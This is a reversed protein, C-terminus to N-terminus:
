ITCCLSSIFVAHTICICYTGAMVSQESNIHVGNFLWWQQHVGRIHNLCLHECIHDHKLIDREHLSGQGWPPTLRDKSM